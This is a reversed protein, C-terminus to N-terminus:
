LRDFMMSFTESTDIGLSQNRTEEQTWINGETEFVLNGEFTLRTSKSDRVFLQTIYECIKKEKDTFEDSYDRKGLRVHGRGSAISELDIASVPYWSACGIVKPNKKKNYARDTVIECDKQPMSFLSRGKFCNNIQKGTSIYEFFNNDATKLLQFFNPHESKRIGLYLDIEDIRCKSITEIASHMEDYTLAEPYMIVFNGMYEAKRPENHTVM